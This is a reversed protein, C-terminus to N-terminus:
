PFLAILLSLAATITLVLNLLYSFLEWVRTEGHKDLTATLIPILAFSLGGGALIAVLTDPLNNAVNFADFNASLGFARAALYQRGLAFLKDLGFFFAVLLSANLLRKNM